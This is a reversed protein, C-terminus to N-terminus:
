RVPAKRLRRALFIVVVLALAMLILGPLGFEDAFGSKPLGAAALTSTPTLQAIAVQTQLAAMTATLPDYMSTPTDSPIAVVPTTTETPLPSPLPTPTWQLSMATATMAQAIQVNQAEVTAQQAAKQSNLRPGLFLAYAALCVISLFVVGALIGAAILFTRNSSEEAPPPTPNNLNLDNDQELM